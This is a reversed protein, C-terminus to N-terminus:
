LSLTQSDIVSGDNAIFALQITGAVPDAEFVTYNWQKIVSPYHDNPNLLLVIPNIFSGGPGCFVEYMDDFDNGPRGITAVAGWHFDGAIWLVGEIGTDRIYALIEEQQEPHGDWRDEEAIGFYVDDMDTIPVSNGIIKFRATSAALEDKLWQMQEASIYDGDIREGRCDLM